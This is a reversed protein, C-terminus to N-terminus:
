AGPCLNKFYCVRCTPRYKDSAGILVEEESAITRLSYHASEQCFYCIAKKFKIKDAKAILRAVNEFPEMKFSGNLASVMVLKGSLVLEQCVEM